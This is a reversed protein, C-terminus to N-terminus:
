SLGPGISYGESETAREGSLNKLVRHVQKMESFVQMQEKQLVFGCEEEM